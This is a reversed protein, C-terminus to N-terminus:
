KPFQITLGILLWNFVCGNSIFWVIASTFMPFLCECFPVRIFKFIPFSSSLDFTTPAYVCSGINIQISFMPSYISERVSYLSDIWNTCHTKLLADILNVFTHILKIAKDTQLHPPLCQCTRLHNVPPVLLLVPTQKSFVRLAQVM